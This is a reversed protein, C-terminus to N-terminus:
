NISDILIEDSGAPMSVLTGDDSVIYNTFIDDVGRVYMQESVYNRPAPILHYYVLLDVQAKKAIEAVEVTTAHYDQIDFLVKSLVENGAEEAAKEMTHILPKALAEHLLVDVGKSYEVMVDLAVTDGSIVMSRDKYEVKFAYSPDVPSHDVRFATIKTDKNEFIVASNGDFEVVDYGYAEIPLISGHHESRYSADLEYALRYGELTSATGVPGLVPLHEKRGGLWSQFQIEPVDSIHDSHLHSLILAELDTYDIGWSQLNAASGEGSDIIFKSPGAQVLLCTEARNPSPLPARSGCVAVSLADDLFIENTQASLLQSVVKKFLRDQVAHNQILMFGLLAMVILPILVYKIIKM